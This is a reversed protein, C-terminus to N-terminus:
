QPPFLKSKLQPYFQQVVSDQINRNFEGSHDYGKDRFGISFLDIEGGNVNQGIGGQSGAALSRPRAVFPMLELPDTVTRPIVGEGANFQNTTLIATGNTVNYYYGFFVLPKFLTQNGEWSVNIGLFNNTATALAYDVINYFNVIRGRVANTIGAAYNAYSNPTHTLSTEADLFPQFGPVTTDYCHAPVAAQMMVYNDLPSQNVTALEKLAEMMVINGQSHACASITYNTYRQRLNYFYLGAGSGSDFAIHESRNFTLQDMGNSDTDASRTPWRLSAFRGQYGQWYLRKFMADSFNETDWATMRWGRVFVALQKAEYPNPEPSALVQFGSTVNTQVMAPWTQVVNTVEAREYMDKAESFNVYAEAQGLLMNNKYVSLVLGVQGAGTGEFLFNTRVPNGQNDQPVAYGANWAYLQALENGYPSAVQAAALNTDTLYGTGGGAEAAAYLNVPGGWSGWDENLTIAYGQNAPLSPLGRVWLRAFNELNRQCRIQGFAYNPQIQGSSFNGQSQIVPFTQDLATGNGPQDYLDNVWFPMPHSATTFDPGSLTADMIGDHNADLVLSVVQVIGTGRQGDSAPLTVLAVPGPETPVFNGYPSLVGTPTATVNGSADVKYARDFYQSVYVPKSTDGNVITQKAFAAVQLPTGVTALLLPQANTPSFRNEGPLPDAALPNGNPAQNADPKGFYYGVTQLQPQDYQPYFFYSDDTAALSGGANLTDYYLTSNDNHVVLVSLLKLGFYNYINNPLMFQGDDTTIIGVDEPDAYPTIWTTQGPALLGPVATTNTTSYYFTFPAQLGYAWFGQAPDGFVRWGMAGTNLFGSAAVNTTAFVFNRLRYNEQFPLGWYFQAEDGLGDGTGANVNWFGAYAYGAPQYVPTMAYGDDFAYVFPGYLGAARLLFIANQELAVSADNFRGAVLGYHTQAELYGAYVAASTSRTIGNSWVTQVYWSSGDVGLGALNTPVTYVSNTFLSIPIYFSNSGGIVPPNSFYNNWDLRTAQIGVADSPTDLVM